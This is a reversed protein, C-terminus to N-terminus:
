DADGILRCATTEQRGFNCAGLRIGQVAQLYYTLLRISHERLQLSRPLHVGIGREQEANEACGSKYGALFEKPAIILQAIGNGPMSARASPTQCPAERAD